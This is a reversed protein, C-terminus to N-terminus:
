GRVRALIRERRRRRRGVKGRQAPASRHDGEGGDGKGKRKSGGTEGVPLLEPAVQIRFAHSIALFLVMMMSPLRYEPAVDELQAALLFEGSM